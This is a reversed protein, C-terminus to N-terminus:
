RPPSAAPALPLSSDAGRCGLVSVNILGLGAVWPVAWSPSQCYGSSCPEGWLGKEQPEAGEGCSLYQPPFIGSGSGLPLSVDGAVGDPTDWVCSWSVGGGSGNQLWALWLLAWCQWVGPSPLGQVEDAADTAEEPQVPPPPLVPQGQHWLGAESTGAASHQSPEGLARSLRSGGTVGLVQEPCAFSGEAELSCARTGGRAEGPGRCGLEGLDKGTM